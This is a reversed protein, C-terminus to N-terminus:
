FDVTRNEGNFERLGGFILGKFNRSFHALFKANLPSRLAEFRVPLGLTAAPFFVREVPRQPGKSRTKLNEFLSGTAFRGSRM